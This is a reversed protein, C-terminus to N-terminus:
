IRGDLRPIHGHYKDPLYIDLVYHWKCRRGSRVAHKRYLHRSLVIELYVM